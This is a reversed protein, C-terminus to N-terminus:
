LLNLGNVVAIDLSVAKSIEPVYSNLDFNNVWINAVEIEMNLNMSLYKEFGVIMAARGCLIIRDVRSEVDERENCYSVYKYIEDKIASITNIFYSFIEMNDSNESYLKEKKIKKAEELDVKYYKAILDTFTSSGFNLTSTQCVVGNVVLSQVINREQINVIVVVQRNTDKIVSKAINNSEPSFLVPTLGALELVTQYEQVTKLQTVSVVVDVEKNDKRSKPIIDYDFVAEKISLPVNEEIKFEIVNHIENAELNPLQTKFMYTKDEPISLKAFSVGTLKRIENLAKIVPERKIIDGHSVTGDPLHIFGYQEPLIGEESNRTALFSIGDPLIQLSVAPMALFKPSVFLKSYISKISM